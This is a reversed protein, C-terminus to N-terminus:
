WSFIGLKWGCTCLTLSTSPGDLPPKWSDWGATTTPWSGLVVNPSLWAGVRSGVLGDLVGKSEIRGALHRSWTLVFTKKSQSEYSMERGGAKRALSAIPNEPPIPDGELPTIRRNKRENEKLELSTGNRAKNENNSKKHIEKENQKFNIPIQFKKVSM